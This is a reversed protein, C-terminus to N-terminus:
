LEIYTFIGLLVIGIMMSTVSIFNSVDVAKSYAKAWCEPVSLESDNIIFNRAQNMKSKTFRADYKNAKQGFIQSLFNVIIALGFFLGAVKLSTYNTIPPTLTHMYKIMEFILYISGGSISIILLDIRGIAYWKNKIAREREDKWYAVEFENIPQNKIENEM